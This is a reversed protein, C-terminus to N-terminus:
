SVSVVTASLCTAGSPCMIRIATWGTTAREGYHQTSLPSTVFVLKITKPKVLDPRLSVSSALVSVMVGGIRNKLNSSKIIRVFAIVFNCLFYLLVKNRYWICSIPNYLMYTVHWYCWSCIECANCINFAFIYLYILYTKSLTPLNFLM